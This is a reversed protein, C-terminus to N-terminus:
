SLSLIESYFEAQVPLLLKFAQNIFNIADLNEAIIYVM